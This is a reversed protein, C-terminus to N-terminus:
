TQVGRREERERMKYLSATTLNCPLAEIVHCLWVPEASSDCRWARQQHQQHQQLQLALSFKMMAQRWRWRWLGRRWHCGVRGDIVSKSVPFTSIVFSQHVFHYSRYSASHMCCWTARYYCATDIICNMGFCRSWPMYTHVHLFSLSIALSPHVSCNFDGLTWKTM